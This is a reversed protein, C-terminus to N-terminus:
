QRQYAVCALLGWAVLLALGGLPTIMGLWRIDLVALLYLSGSFLVIGAILLWSACRLLKHPPLLALVLLLATHWMQYSVATKYVDLGYETLHPKLAHAGFAGLAVGLFGSIAAILLFPSRM